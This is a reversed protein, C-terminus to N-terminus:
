AMVAVPARVASNANGQLENGVPKFRRYEEVVTDDRLQACPRCFHGVLCDNCSDGRPAGTAAAIRGRWEHYACSFMIWFIIAVLTVVGLLPSPQALGNRSNMTQQSLVNSIITVICTVICYMKLRKGLPDDVLGIKEMVRNHFYLFAAGTGYGTIPIVYLLCDCTCCRAECGEIAGLEVHQQGQMTAYVPAQGPQGQYASPYLPQNPASPVPQGVVQKKTAQAM